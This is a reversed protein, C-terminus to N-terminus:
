PGAAAADLAPRLFAESRARAEAGLRGLVDRIFANREQVDIFAGLPVFFFLAGHAIVVGDREIFMQTIGRWKLLIEAHESVFRLGGPEPRLRTVPDFGDVKLIRLIGVRRLAFLAALYLLSIAVFFTLRPLGFSAQWSRFEKEFVLFLASAALYAALLLWYTYWTLGLVKRARVSGLNTIRELSSRYTLERDV